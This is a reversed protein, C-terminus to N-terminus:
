NMAELIQQKVEAPTNPDALLKLIAEVTPPKAGAGPVRITPTYDAAYAECEELTMGSSPDIETTDKGDDGKLYSPELGNRLKNGIDTTVQRCALNYVVDPGVKTIAEDLNDGFDYEVEVSALMGEVEGAKPAKIKVKLM